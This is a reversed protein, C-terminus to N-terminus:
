TIQRRLRPIKKNKQRINNVLESKLQCTDFLLLLFGLKPSDVFPWPLLETLFAQPMFM